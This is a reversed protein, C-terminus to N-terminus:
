TGRLHDLQRDLSGESQPLALISDLAREYGDPGGRLYILRLYAIRPYDRCESDFRRKPTVFSGRISQATALNPYGFVM